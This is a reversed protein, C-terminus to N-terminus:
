LCGKARFIAMITILFIRRSIAHMMVKHDVSDFYHRIDAKLAYGYIQNNDNAKSLLKGNMSVKRMFFDFWKLAAHTGKGKRNAYSDCIFVKDFIPEIINCLAHHVVRDRFASASIVRTKPDRIIFTKMPKPEYTQKFLDKQLQLLNKELDNDFDKVYWKAGKGKRAKKYAKRLNKM